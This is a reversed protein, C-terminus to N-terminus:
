FIKLNKMKSNRLSEVKFGEFNHDDFSKENWSKNARSLLRFSLCFKNILLESAIADRNSKKLCKVWLSVSLIKKMAQPIM